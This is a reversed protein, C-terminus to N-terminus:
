AGGFRKARAELKAKEAPDIAPAAKKQGNPAGGEKAGGRGRRGGRNNNSNQNNGRGANNRGGRAPGSSQRKNSRSDEEKEEGGRDRGRKRPRDPLASDLASVADNAIGFRAARDVKKAEESEKDTTIGFRAARAARKEAESKANTPALHQSFLPETSAPTETKKDESEAPKTETPADASPAPAAPTVTKTETAPTAAPAPAPAPAPAAKTAPAAPKTAPVDDDEYDIEDELSDKKAATPITLDAKTLPELELDLGLEIDKWSTTTKTAIATTMTFIPDFLHLTTPHTLFYNLAAASPESAKAQEKDNEVLRAILDAKNGAQTLGRESLLKKLEPVKMSNYDAM